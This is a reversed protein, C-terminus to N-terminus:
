LIWIEKMHTWQLIINLGNEFLVYVVVVNLIDFLIVIVRLQIDQDNAYHFIEHIDYWKECALVNDTLNRLEMNIEILWNLYTCVHSFNCEFMWDNSYDLTAHDIDSDISTECRDIVGEDILSIWQQRTRMSDLRFDLWNWFCWWRLFVIM